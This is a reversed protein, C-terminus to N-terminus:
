SVENEEVNKRELKKATKTTVPETHAGVLAYYSLLCPLASHRDDDESWNPVQTDRKCVNILASLSSGATITAADVSLAAEPTFTILTKNEWRISAVACTHRLCHQRRKTHPWPQNTSHFVAASSIAFFSFFRLNKHTPTHIPQHLHSLPHTSTPPYIPKPTHTPMCTHTGSHIHMNTHRHTHIHTHIHTHTYTHTHTHTHICLCM